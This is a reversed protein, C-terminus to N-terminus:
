AIRGRGHFGFPVEDAVRYLPTGSADLLGTRQPPRPDDIVIMTPHSEGWESFGYQKPPTPLAVYRATM